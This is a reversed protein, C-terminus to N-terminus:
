MGRWDIIFVVGRDGEPVTMACDIPDCTYGDPPLITLGDAGTFPDAEWKFLAEVTLGDLTLVYLGNDRSSNLDINDMVVRAVAPADAPELRVMTGSISITDAFAPLSWALAAAAMVGVVLGKVFASRVDRHSDRLERRLVANSAELGRIRHEPSPHTM